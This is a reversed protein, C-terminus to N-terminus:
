RSAATSADVAQLADTAFGLRAMRQKLATREASSLSPTRAMLKPYLGDETTAIMWSYDDAHDTVWYRARILGGFFSAEFETNQANIAKASTNIVSERGDPADRHCVQRIAYDSARRTWVQYAGFCNKQQDNPTRLIEYWRGVFQDMDVSKEPTPAAAHAAGALSAVLLCCVMRRLAVDEAVEPRSTAGLRYNHVSSLQRQILSKSFFGGLV